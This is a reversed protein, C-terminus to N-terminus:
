DLHSLLKLTNAEVSQVYGGQKEGKVRALDFRVIFEQTTEGHRRRFHIFDMMAKLRDEDDYGGFRFQLDTLIYAIPDLWDNTYPHWGGHRISESPLDEVLEQAVGRLQMIVACAQQEPRLDTM